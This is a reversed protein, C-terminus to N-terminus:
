TSSAVMGKPMHMTSAMPAMWGLDMAPEWNVGPRFLPPCWWVVSEACTNCVPIETVGHAICVHTKMSHCVRYAAKSVPEDHHTARWCQHLALRSGRVHASGRKGVDNLANYTKAVHMWHVMWRIRMLIRLLSLPQRVSYPEVSSHQTGHRM